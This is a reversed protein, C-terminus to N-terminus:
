PFSWNPIDNDIHYSKVKCIQDTALNNSKHKKSWHIM